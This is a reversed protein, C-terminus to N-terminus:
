CAFQQNFFEFGAPPAGGFGLARADLLQSALGPFTGAAGLVSHERVLAAMRRFLLGPTRHSCILPRSSQLAAVQGAGQVSRGVGVPRHIGFPNRCLAWPQSSRAVRPFVPCRICGQFPQPMMRHSCRFRDCGRQPKSAQRGTGLTAREECGQAPPRLGTPIASPHLSCSSDGCEM